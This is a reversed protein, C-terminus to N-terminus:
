GSSPPQCTCANRLAVKLWPMFQDVRTYVGPYSPRACGRGWSVIGVLTYHPKAMLLPGGSDGTCADRSAANACLMRPTVKKRGYGASTCEEQAWIQVGAKMPVNSSPGKEVTSGWGSVIADVGELYHEDTWDPLCAPRYLNDPLPEELRLVAIDCDYSYKNFDPHQAVHSVQYGAAQSSNVDYEGVLVTLRSAEIGHVCHTATILHDPAVVTAGCIVKGDRKLAALWPFEGPSVAVGGVVRGARAVGCTCPKCAHAAASIALLCIIRLM